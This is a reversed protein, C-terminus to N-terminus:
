SRRPAAALSRWRCRRAMWSRLEERGPEAAPARRLHDPLLHGCGARDKSNRGGAPTKRPEHCHRWTPPSCSPQGAQRSTGDTSTSASWWSGRVCRDKVSSPPCNSGPVLQAAADPALIDTFSYCLYALGDIALLVGITRPLFKSNLVLYAFVLIDLGFFVTHITSDSSALEGPLSALAQLQAPSLASGYPGNGLLVLPTFQNLLGAAEIATAVLIFFTDLLALRRNVVRSCSM